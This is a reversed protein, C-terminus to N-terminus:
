LLILALVQHLGLFVGDPQRQLVGSLNPCCASWRKGRLLCCISWRGLEQNCWATGVSGNPLSLPQRPHLAFSPCLFSWLSTCFQDFIVWYPAFNMRVSWLLTSIQNVILKNLSLIPYYEHSFIDQTFLYLFVELTDNNRHYPASSSSNRGPCLITKCRCQCWPRTAHLTDIRFSKLSTKRKEPFIVFWKCSIVWKSESILNPNHDIQLSESVGTYQFIM